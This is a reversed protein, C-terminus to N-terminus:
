PMLFVFPLARKRIDVSSKAVLIATELDENKWTEFLKTTIVRSANTEVPWLSALIFESGANAFSETFGTFLLDPEELLGAASDCASLLVISNPLHFREVASHPLLEYKGNELSLLRPLFFGNSSEPVYGHTALAIVYHQRSKAIESARELGSLVSARDEIYIESENFYSSLLSIEKSAEPLPEFTQGTKKFGRFQLRKTEDISISSNYQPDSVTPNGVGVFASPRGLKTGTQSLNIASTLDSAHIISIDSEACFSGILLESPIPLLNVSPLIIIASNIYSQVVGHLPKLFDCSARLRDDSPEKYSTFEKRVETLKHADLSIFEKQSGEATFIEIVLDGESASLQIIPTSVPNFFKAWNWLDYGEFPFNNLGLEFNGKLSLREFYEVPTSAEEASNNTKLFHNFQRQTQLKAAIPLNSKKASVTEPKQADNLFHIKVEESTSQIISNVLSQLSNNEAYNDNIGLIRTGPPLNTKQFGGGDLVESVFIGNEQEDFVVGLGNFYKPWSKYTKAMMIEFSENKNKSNNQHLGLFRERKNKSSLITKYSRSLQTLKLKLYQATHTNEGVGRMYQKLAFESNVIINELHKQNFRLSRGDNNVFSTVLSKFIHESAVVALAAGNLNKTDRSVLALYDFALLLRPESFNFGVRLYGPMFDSLYRRYINQIEKGRNEAELHHHYIKACNHWKGIFEHALATSNFWSAAGLKNQWDGDNKPLFIAEAIKEDMCYNKINTGDDVLLNTVFSFANELSYNDNSLEVADTQEDLLYRVMQDKLLEGPVSFFLNIKIDEYEVDSPNLDAEKLKKYVISDILPAPIQLVKLVHKLKVLNKLIFHSYDFDGNKSFFILNNIAKFQAEVAREYNGSKMYIDSLSSYNIRTAYRNEPSKSIPGSSVQDFYAWSLPHSVQSLYHSTSPTPLMEKKPSSSYIKSSLLGGDSLIADENLLFNEFSTTGAGFLYKPLHTFIDEKSHNFIEALRKTNCYYFINQLPAGLKATFQIIKKFNQSISCENDLEGSIANLPRLDLEAWKKRCILDIDPNCVTEIIKTLAVVSKNLDKRFKSFSGNPENAIYAAEFANVPQEFFSRVVENNENILSLHAFNKDANIGEFKTHYRIDGKLFLGLAKEDSFDIDGSLISTFVSAVADSSKDLVGSAITAPFFKGYLERLEPFRKEYNLAWNLKELFTGAATNPMGHLANEFDMLLFTYDSDVDDPTQKYFPQGGPFDLGSLERPSLVRLRLAWTFEHPLSSTFSALSLLKPALTDPVRFAADLLNYDVLIQDIAALIKQSGIDTYEQSLQHLNELFETVYIELKEWTDAKKLFNRQPLFLVEILERPALNQKQITEFGLKNTMRLSARSLGLIAQPDALRARTVLSSFKDDFPDLDNLFYNKSFLIQSAPIGNGIENTARQHAYLREANQHPEFAFAVDCVTFLTQSRFGDPFSLASIPNKNCEETILQTLEGEIEQENENTEAFATVQFACWLMLLFAVRLSLMKPKTHLGAKSM